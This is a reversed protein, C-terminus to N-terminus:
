FHWHVPRAGAIQSRFTAIRDNGLAGLYVTKLDPGGFAISSINGLRRHNAIDIMDRDFRGEDFALSLDAMEAADCDELVLHTEGAADVRIVRNSGVSVIWVGGESDFAFGDPFTAPGYEAVTERPGLSGNSRIQFRSTRQAITENVYLWDGSPDVIAENTFGLGDAVIRCSRADKVAIFGDGYGKQFAGQRPVLRTSVTVWLRGAGDLGVFNVPPLAIGDAEAIELTLSGDPTLRWVGSSLGLNAILVSRDPMLAIGNPLFDAPPTSAAVFRQRGAADTITIGGRSDSAFLDGSETALVCEPRSMGQGIFAVEEPELTLM